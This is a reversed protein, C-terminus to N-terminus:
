SVNPNANREADQIPICTLSSYPENKQNLGTEWTFEGLEDDTYRLMDGMRTGQMWLERRREEVIQRKIEAEDNSSFQPLDYDARLENIIDVAAQGGRAEALMLQAERGTAMPKDTAESSYKEQLALSTINDNGTSGEVVDVPVRPDPVGDIELDRFRPHVSMDRTVNNRQVVKNRRRQSTTAYTSYHVFDRDIQSADSEVGSMNGQNLRTRARGVLAMQEIQTADAHSSARAREIASTFQAEAREFGSERSEAPGSNFAVECFTESLLLISYGAYAHAQAILFERNAVDGADWGEIRDIADLATFRATQLPRWTGHSTFTECGTAGFNRVEENRSGWINYNRLGSSTWWEDAFLGTAVSTSTFACEFDAVAGLVLTQALGPNDLESAEVQGPLDVDLLSDCAATTLLFAGALALGAARGFGRSRSQTRRHNM